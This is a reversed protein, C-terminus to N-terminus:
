DYSANQQPKPYLDGYVSVRSISQFELFKHPTLTDLTYLLIVETM